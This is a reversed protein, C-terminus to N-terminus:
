SVVCLVEGGIGATRAARDTMIGQSTSIIAIGFGDRVKPLDDAGRYIRVGPRSIRRIEAIVGAGAYYKLTLNLVPHGDQTEERFDTIYGEEVLVRAIARKLKSAPMLVKAKNVQQANRIRTLMDAIPDTVSM